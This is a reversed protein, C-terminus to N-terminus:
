KVLNESYENFDDVLKQVTKDILEFGVTLSKMKDQYFGYMNKYNDKADKDTLLSDFHSYINQLYILGITKVNNVVQWKDTYNKAIKNANAQTLDEAEGIWGRNVWTSKVAQDQYNLATNGVNSEGNIEDMATLQKQYEEPSVKYADEWNTVRIDWTGDDHVFIDEGENLTKLINQGNEIDEPNLRDAVMQSADEGLEDAEQKISKVTDVLDATNAIKELKQNDKVVEEATATPIEKGEDKAAKIAKANKLVRGLIPEAASFVGNIGISFLAGDVVNKLKAEATSDNPDTQLWDVFAVNTDGLMDAFRGEDEEHITADLIAGQLVGQTGVNLVGVGFKKLLNASGTKFFKNGKMVAEAVGAVKAAGVANKAMLAGKALGAVEGGIALGGVGYLYKVFTQYTEGAKTRPTYDLEYKKPVFFKSLEVGAATFEDGVTEWYGLNEYDERKAIEPNTNPQPEAQQPQQNEQLVGMNTLDENTTPQPNALQEWEDATLGNIRIDDM